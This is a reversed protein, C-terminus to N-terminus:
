KFFSSVRVVLPYEEDRSRQKIDINTIKYTAKIDNEIETEYYCSEGIELLEKLTTKETKPGRGGLFSPKYETFPSEPLKYFRFPQEESFATGFLYSIYIHVYNLGANVSLEAELWIDTDETYEVRITMVDYVPVSLESLRAYEETNESSLIDIVEEPAKVDFLYNKGVNSEKDAGFLLAGAATFRYYTCPAYLASDMYGGDKETEKQVALFFELEDYYSYPCLYCPDILRFYYGFPTLFWKDINLGLLFSDASFSMSADDKEGNMIDSIESFGQGGDYYESFIADIPMPESLWKVVDQHEIECYGGMFFCSLYKASLNIAKDLLWEFLERNNMSLYKGAGDSLRLATVGLSPMKEFIEAEMGLMFLYSIYERDWLSINGKLQELVESTAEFDEGIRVVNASLEAIARMDRVLPHDDLSYELINIGFSEGEACLVPYLNKDRSGTMEVLFASTLETNEIFTSYYWKRFFCNVYGIIQKKKNKSYKEYIENFKDFFVACLKEINKYKNDIM